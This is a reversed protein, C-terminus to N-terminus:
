LVSEPAINVTFTPPLGRLQTVLREDPWGGQPISILAHANYMGKVHSIFAPYVITQYPLSMEHIMGLDRMVASEEGHRTVKILTMYPPYSLIKRKGIEQQYFGWGDGSVAFSFVAADPNRTQIVLSESADALESVLRFVREPMGIDPLALLTDISAIIAADVSAGHLYALAMDTGVLIGNGSEKWQKILERAQAPTTVTDASMTFIQADGLEDRLTEAVKEVGLGYMELRWSSCTDCVTHTNRVRGCRHCEFSREGVEGAIKPRPLHLVMPAACRDCTLVKGCDRCVTFGSHGKRLSYVFSLRGLAMSRTLAALAENSMVKKKEETRQQTESDKKVSMDVLTVSKTRDQRFSPRISEDGTEIAGTSTELRAFIDGAIVAAGLSAALEHVTTRADIFPRTQSKYHPSSEHEIIFTGIDRRSLALSAATGIIVVPMEADLAGQWATLLKKKTLSPVIFFAREAIGHSLEGFLSEAEVTTPAIVVISKQQAFSERIFSRYRAVRDTYSAQILRPTIRKPESTITGIDKAVLEACNEFIIKPVITSLTPGLSSAHYQAVRAAASMFAEGFCQEAIVGDIKKLTFALRKIDTKSSSAEDVRTVIAPISKGRVPVRVLAGPRMDASAYYTLTEPAVGKLIPIVSLIKM